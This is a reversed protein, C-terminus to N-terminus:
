FARRRVRNVDVLTAPEGDAVDIDGDVVVADHHLAALARPGVVVRLKRPVARRRIDEHLVAGKAIRRVARQRKARLAGGRRVDRHAVADHVAAAVHEVQLHAGIRRLM